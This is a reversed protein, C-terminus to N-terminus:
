PGVKRLGARDAELREVEAIAEACARLHATSGNEQRYLRWIENRRAIAVLFWHHPRLRLRSMHEREDVRRANSARRVAAGPGSM